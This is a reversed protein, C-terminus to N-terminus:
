KLKQKYDKQNGCLPYENFPNELDEDLYIGVLGMKILDEQSKSETAKPPGQKMKVARRPWWSHITKPNNTLWDGKNQRDTM